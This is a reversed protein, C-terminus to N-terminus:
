IRASLNRTNYDLNWTKARVKDHAIPNMFEMEFSTIVHIKKWSLPRQVFLHAASLSNGM